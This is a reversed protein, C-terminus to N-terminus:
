RTKASTSSNQNENTIEKLEFGFSSCTHANHELWNKVKKFLQPKDMAFNTEVTIIFRASKM